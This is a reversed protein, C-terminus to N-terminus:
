INRKRKGSSRKGNKALLMTSQNDQFPIKDKLVLGQEELFHCTWLIMGMTNNVRILEADKSIRVNIKQKISSSYVSGRGIMM